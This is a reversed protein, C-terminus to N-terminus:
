QFELLVSPEREVSMCLNLRMLNPPVQFPALYVSNWILLREIRMIQVHLIPNQRRSTLSRAVGPNYRRADKTSVKLSDTNFGNYQVKIAPVSVNGLIGSAAGFLDCSDGTLAVLVIIFFVLRLDVLLFFFLFRFYLSRHLLQICYSRPVDIESINCSWLKPLSTIFALSSLADIMLHCFLPNGGM